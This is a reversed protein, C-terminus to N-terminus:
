AEAGTEGERLDDLYGLVLERDQDADVKKKLLKSAAALALEVSEKRLEDLAAEKEREIERSKSCSPKRM